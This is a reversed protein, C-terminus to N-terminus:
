SSAILIGPAKGAQRVILFWDELIFFKGVHDLQYTKRLELCESYETCGNLILTLKGAPFLM